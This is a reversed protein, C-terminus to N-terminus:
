EYIEESEEYSEAQKDIEMKEKAYMVDMSERSALEARIMEIEESSYLDIQDELILLLDATEMEELEAEFDGGDGSEYIVNEDYIVEQEENQNKHCFWCVEDDDRMESVCFKCYKM